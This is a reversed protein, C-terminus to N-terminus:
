ADPRDLELLEVRALHGHATHGLELVLYTLLAEAQAREGMAQLSRAKLLTIEARADDTISSSANEARSLLELVDGHQGKHQMEYAESLSGMRILQSCGSVALALVLLLIRPFFRSQNFSTM